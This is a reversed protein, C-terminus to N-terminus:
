IKSARRRLDDNLVDEYCLQLSRLIGKTTATPQEAGGQFMASRVGILSNTVFAGGSLLSQAELVSEEISVGVGKAAGILAGRVIGCLAGERATPTVVAGSEAIHFINGMSVCAVRGASNLMVADDFGQSTADDHAMINDLYNLTKHQSVVSQESRTFSSAMLKAPRMEKPRRYAASTALITANNSAADPLKLGRQGPGRTVTLRVAALGRELKNRAVLEVIMSVLDEPADADLRLAIASSRLRNLHEDWFAPVGDVVLITEFVGDGLLFGRDAIDIADTQTSFEGNIWFTM